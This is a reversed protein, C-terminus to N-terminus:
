KISSYSRVACDVNSHKPTSHPLIRMPVSQIEKRILSERGGGLIEIKRLVVKDKVDATASGSAMLRGKDEATM